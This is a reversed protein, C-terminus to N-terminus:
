KLRSTPTSVVCITGLEVGGQQRMMALVDVVQYAISELAARVIASKGVGRAGTVNVVTPRGHALMTTLTDLEVERGILPAPAPEPPSTTFVTTSDEGPDSAISM